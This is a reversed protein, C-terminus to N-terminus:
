SGGLAALPGAERRPGAPCSLVGAGGRSGALLAEAVPDRGVEVEGGAKIRGLPLAADVGTDPRVHGSEREDAGARPLPERHCRM